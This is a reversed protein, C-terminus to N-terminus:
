REIIKVVFLGSAAHPRAHQVVWIERFGDEVADEFAAPVDFQAPAGVPRAM